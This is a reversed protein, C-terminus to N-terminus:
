ETGDWDATVDYELDVIVDAARVTSGQEYNISPGALPILAM